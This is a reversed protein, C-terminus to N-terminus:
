FDSPSDLLSSSCVLLFIHGLRSSSPLLYHPHVFSAVSSTSFRVLSHSLLAFSSVLSSRTLYPPLAIHCITLINHHFKGDLRTSISTLSQTRWPPPFWQTQVEHLKNQTNSNVGLASPSLSAINSHSSCQPVCFLLRQTFLSLFFVGYLLEKMM